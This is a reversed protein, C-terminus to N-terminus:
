DGEPSAPHTEDTVNDPLIYHTTSITQGIWIVGGGPKDIGANQHLYIFINEADQETVVVELMRALESEPLKGPKSQSPRLMGISRCSESNATPINKEHRLSHILRRDTGDDPLICTILRSQSFISDSAVAATADSENM